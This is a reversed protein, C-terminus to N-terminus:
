VALWALADERARFVGVRAELDADLQQHCMRTLGFEFGSAVVVARLPPHLDRDLAAVLEGILRVDGITLFTADLATYDILLPLGDVRPDTRLGHHLRAWGSVTAVGSATVAVLPPDDLIEIRYFFDHHGATPEPALAIAHRPTM